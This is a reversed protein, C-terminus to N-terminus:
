EPLGAKRAAPLYKKEFWQKYTAPSSPMPRKFQTLKFNPDARLLDEVTARAKSDDGKLAYAMALYAYPDTLKKNADLAKQAWEITADNDGLTFQVRSMGLLVLPSPHTPELNIAQTLLVAARKAEGSQVLVNALFNYANPNKPELSLWTECVRRQGEFDDHTAAYLAMIGYIIPDDRDLERAKSIVDKGESYKKEREEPTMKRGFNFAQLTLSRALGVMAGANNPEMALVQRYWAELQQLNELSQPKLFLARARLMLDTAKPSSERMESERAAVVVMERGISNVVATTVKDQLAFLNTFDGAFTESWLQAGTLTDALQVSIRVTEGSSLVSGHLVFHVGADKGLQQVSVSKDKYTFATAAPIIFADRIRSLDSTISTTLADAIYAKQQDGTQNSFPLVLVSLASINAPTSAVSSTSVERQVTQYTTWYGLLGSLVAGGGALAVIIGKVRTFKGFLPTSSGAGHNKAPDPKSAATPPTSDTM